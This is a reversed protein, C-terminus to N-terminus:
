SANDATPRGCSPCYRAASDHITSCQPCSSIGPERLVALEEHQGLADQLTALEDDLEGIASLKQARLEERPQKLRHSEFTFGGLDHLALERRRRLFRVRRRIVARQMFGTAAVAPGAEETGGDAGDEVGAQPEGADAGTDPEGVDVAAQPEGADVGADPEGGDVAAEPEGAGADAGADAEGVQSEGSGGGSASAGADVPEVAAGGPEDTRGALTGPAVGAGEGAGDAPVVTGSGELEDAHASGIEAM